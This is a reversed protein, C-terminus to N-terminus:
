QVTFSLDGQMSHGMGSATWRATYAGSALAPLAVSYASAAASPRRFTARVPMGGPGTIAVTQLVVPHAFTLSLTRPATTLTAGDAPVSAALMNMTTVGSQHGHGTQALGPAGVAAVAVIVLAFLMRQM